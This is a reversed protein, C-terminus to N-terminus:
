GWGAALAKGWLARSPNDSASLNLAAMHLFFTVLVVVAATAAVSIVSLHIHGEM